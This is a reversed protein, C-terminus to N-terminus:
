SERTVWMGGKGGDVEDGGGAMADEINGFPPAYMSVVRLDSKGIKFDITCVLGLLSDDTWFQSIARLRPSKLIVQGGVNPGKAGAMRQQVTAIFITGGPGLLEKAERKLVEEWEGPEIRTDQICLIDIAANQMLSVALRLKRLTKLGNANWTAVRCTTQTPGELTEGYHSCLEEMEDNRRDRKTERIIISEGPFKERVSPRDDEQSEKMEREGPKERVERQETSNLTDCRRSRGEEESMRVREEKERRSENEWEKEVKERGEEAKQQDRRDGEACVSIEESLNERSGGVEEGDVRGEEAECERRVQILKERGEEMVRFDAEMMFAIPRIWKM